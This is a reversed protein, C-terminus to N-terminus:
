EFDPSDSEQCTRFLSDDWLDARHTCVELYPCTGYYQRCAGGDKPYNESMHCDKIMRALQYLDRNAAEIDDETFVIERCQLFEDPSGGIQESCRQRYEEISEGLQRKAKSTGTKSKKILAARRRKFEEETEAQKWKLTPKKLVDYLVKRAGTAMMYWLIQHDITLRQWYPGFGIIDQSTTKHELVVTNGVSDRLIGDVRGTFEVGELPIGRDPDKIQMAFKYELNVVDYLDVPPDYHELMATIKAADQEDIDGANQILLGVAKEKGNSWWEELCLHMARGLRLAQADVIPVRDLVYEHQYKRPCQLFKQIRSASLQM